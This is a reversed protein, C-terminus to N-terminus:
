ITYRFHCVDLGFIVVGTVVTENQVHILKFKETFMFGQTSFLVGM